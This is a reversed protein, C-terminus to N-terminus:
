VAAASRHTMCSRNDYNHLELLLHMNLVASRKVFSLGWQLAQVAAFSLGRSLASFHTAIRAAGTFDSETASAAM